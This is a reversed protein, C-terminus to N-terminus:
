VVSTCYCHCAASTSTRYYGLEKSFIDMCTHSISRMLPDLRPGAAGQGSCSERWSAFSSRAFALFEVVTWIIDRAPTRASCPPSM